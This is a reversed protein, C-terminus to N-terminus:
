GTSSALRLPRSMRSGRRRWTAACSSCRRSRPTSGVGDDASRRAGQVGGRGRDGPRPDPRTRADSPVRRLLGSPRRAAGRRGPQEHGIEALKARAAAAQPAKLEIVKNLYKRADDVRKEKAALEAATLWVVGQFGVPSNALLPSSILDNVLKAGRAGKNMFGPVALFTNAAVYKVELVGPTGNQVPADHSANLMSLAKDLQSLGDEAYGM